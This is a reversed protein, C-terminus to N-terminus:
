PKVGEWTLKITKHHTVKVAPDLWIQFGLSKARHCLSIDEGLMNFVYPKGDIETETPFAQFWPRPMKEFIGSKFCIFGFGASYIEVPETMQKVEDYSYPKGLKEKYAMVDGTAILYAGSIIDKDSEYLKIFDEPTWAIDSDIWILKDYTIAGKFPRQESPDNQNDGNLTMERADAVHSSYESSWAWTIGRKSLEGITALLSKTYSSMASHGPTCIIVNIHQKEM